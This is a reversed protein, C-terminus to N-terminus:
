SICSSWYDNEMSYPHFICVTSDALSEKGKGKRDWIQGRKEPEWEDSELILQRLDYPPLLEPDPEEDAIAFLDKAYLEGHARMYGALQSSTAKSVFNEVGPIRNYWYWNYVSAGWHLGSPTTKGYSLESLRTKISHGKPDRPWWQCIKVRFPVQRKSGSNATQYVYNVNRAMQRRREEESQEAGGSKPDVAPIGSPTGVPGKVYDSQDIAMSVDKESEKPTVNGDDISQDPDTMTNTTTQAKLPKKPKNGFIGKLGKELSSDFLKQPSM